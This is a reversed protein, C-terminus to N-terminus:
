KGFVPRRRRRVTDIYFVAVIACNIHQDWGKASVLARELPFRVLRRVAGMDETTTCAAFGSGTLNQAAFLGHASCGSVQGLFALFARGKKMGEGLYM